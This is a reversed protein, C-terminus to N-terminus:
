VVIDLFDLNPWTMSHAADPNRARFEELRNRSLDDADCNAESTIYVPAVSVNYCEVLLAWIRAYRMLESVPSYLSNLIHCVTLNDIHFVICRSRFRPGWTNLAALAAIFEKQNISAAAAFQLRGVFSYTFWEGEAFAGISSGSSDSFIHVANVSWDPNFYGTGNHSSICAVWWQIDSKAETGLRVKHHLARSAKAAALLRGIFARGQRIARCAFSFKGIISLLRRKTYPTDQLWSAAEQKLEQLRKESIRLEQAESDIVIGLFEICTNPATVKSPQVSFGSERCVQLMLDINHQCESPSNALVLFDDVYRVLNTTVGKTRMFRELAEAFRNFLFPASRLGFNLVRSFYFMTKGSPAQWSFGMLHWDAPHIFVHKYADQLDIKAM